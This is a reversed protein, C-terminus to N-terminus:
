ALPESWGPVALVDPRNDRLWTKINTIASYRHRRTRPYREALSYVQPCNYKDRGWNYEIDYRAIELASVACVNKVADVRAAHYPGFNRFMIGLKMECGWRRRRCRRFLVM